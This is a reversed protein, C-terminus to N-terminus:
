QLIRLTRVVADCTRLEEASPSAIMTCTVTWGVRGDTITLQITLVKGEAGPVFNSADYEADAIIAERGGVLVRAQSLEKFGTLLEKVQELGAEFYEAVAIEGPLSQVVINVNPDFGQQTPLGAAFVFGGSSFSLGFQKSKLIDEVMSQVEQMISLALVWESPYAISFLNSEDTFTVFEPPTTPTPLPEFTPPKQEGRCAAMVMVLAIILTSVRLKTM